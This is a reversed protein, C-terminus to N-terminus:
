YPPLCRCEQTPPRRPPDERQFYIRLGRWIGQVGYMTVTAELRVGRTVGNGTPQNVSEFGLNCGFADGMVNSSISAVENHAICFNRAADGERVPLKTWM